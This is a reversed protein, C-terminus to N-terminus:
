HLLSNSRVKQIFLEQLGQEVSTQPTWKLVKKAFTIDAESSRTEPIAPAHLPKSNKGSLKILMRTVENVTTQKGTGINIVGCYDATAAILNARAVDKVFVYDRTQEGDGYITPQKGEKLLATFKPIIGAYSGTMSQRPGFVNFYRLSITSLGYLEHFLKCYYEGALKHLGYQSIVQPTMSEKHPPTLNGYTAASSSLIFRAGHKKALLLMNLTGTCNVEHAEKPHETSYPISPIAALHFIVDIKKNNLVDIDETISKRIITLNKNKAHQQLNEKKGSSFDDLVIVTHKQELLMDVIHSGIFGAGGTVLCNM